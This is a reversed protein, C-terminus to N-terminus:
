IWRDTSNWRPNSSSRHHQDTRWQSRLLTSQTCGFPHEPQLDASSCGNYQKRVLRRWWLTPQMSKSLRNPLGDFLKRTFPCANLLPNSEYNRESQAFFHHRRFALTQNRHYFVIDGDIVPIGGLLQNESPVTAVYAATAIDNKM